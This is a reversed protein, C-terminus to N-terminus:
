INKLYNICLYREPLDEGWGGTLKAVFSMTFTEASYSRRIGFVISIANYHLRMVTVFIPLGDKM